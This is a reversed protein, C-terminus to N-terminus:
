SIRQGDYWHFLTRSKRTLQEDFSRAASKFVPIAYVELRTPHLSRRFIRNSVHLVHSAIRSEMGAVMVPCDDGVPPASGAAIGTKGSWSAVSNGFPETRM